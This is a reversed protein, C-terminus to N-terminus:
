RAEFRIEINKVGLNKTLIMHIKDDHVERFEFNTEKLFKQIGKVPKYSRNEDRIEKDFCENFKRM